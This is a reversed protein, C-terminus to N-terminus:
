LVGKVMISTGGNLPFPWPLVPPEDTILESWAFADRWRALQASAPFTLEPDRQYSSRDVRWYLASNRASLRTSHSVVMFRTVRSISILWSNTRVRTAAAHSSSVVIAM